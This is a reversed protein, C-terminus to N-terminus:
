IDSKRSRLQAAAALLPYYYDNAVTLQNALEDLVGALDMETGIDIFHEPLFPESIKPQEVLISTITTM